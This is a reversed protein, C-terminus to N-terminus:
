ILQFDRACFEHGIHDLSVKLKICVPMKNKHQNTRIKSLGNKNQTTDELLGKRKELPVSFYIYEKHQCM